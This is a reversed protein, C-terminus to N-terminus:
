RRRAAEARRCLCFVVAGTAARAHAHRDHAAAGAVLSVTRRAICRAGAVGGDPESGTDHCGDAAYRSRHATRRRARRRQGAACVSRARAAARRRGHREDAQGRREGCASAAAESLVGATVSLFFRSCRAEKRRSSRGESAAGSTACHARLVRLAFEREGSADQSTQLLTGPGIRTRRRQCHARSRAERWRRRLLGVLARQWVSRRLRMALRLQDDDVLPAGADLALLEAFCRAFCAAFPAADDGSWLLQARWRRDNNPRVLSRGRRRAHVLLDVLESQRQVDHPSSRSAEQWQSSAISETLGLRCM